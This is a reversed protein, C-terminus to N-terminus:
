HSGYQVSCNLRTKFKTTVAKLFADFALAHSFLIHWSLGGCPAGVSTLLQGTNKAVKFIFLFSKLSLALLQSSVLKSVQKNQM